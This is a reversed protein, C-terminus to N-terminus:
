ERFHFSLSPQLTAFIVLISLEQVVLSRGRMQSVVSDTTSPPLVLFDYIRARKKEPHPRLVRGRRQIFQRLTRSSAIIIANEARPIDVGEDLRKKAVVWDLRGAALHELHEMSDGQVFRHASVGKKGLEQILVDIWQIPEASDDEVPFLGDPSYIIGYSPEKTFSSVRSILERALVLKNCARELIRHRKILLQNCAMQIEPDESNILRAIKESLEEYENMEGDTLEVQNIEYVYPSLYKDKIAEQITYVFYDGISENFYTLLRSTGEADYQRIPTASLGLRWPVISPLSNIGSETGMTHVEDVIIVTDKGILSLRKSIHQKFAQHTAVIGVKASLNQMHQITEILDLEWVNRDGFAKIVKLFDNAELQEAWQEVLVTSPVIVVVLLCDSKGTKQLERLAQIATFTKGTGTAMAWIGQFGNTKWYKIANSQYERLKLISENEELKEEHDWWLRQEDSNRLPIVDTLIRILESGDRINVDPESGEWMRTFLQSYYSTIEENRAAHEWTPLVHLCEVNRLFASASFNLSGHTVLSNGSYDHFIAFKHHVIGGNPAKAIKIELQGTEILFRLFEFGRKKRESLAVWFRRFDDCNLDSISKHKNQTAEIISRVDEIWLQDNIIFRFRPVSDTDWSFTCALAEFATSSFYGLGIDITKSIPLVTRYFSLPSKVGPGYLQNIKIQQFSKM